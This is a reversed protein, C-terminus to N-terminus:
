PTNPSSVFFGPSAPRPLKEFTEFARRGYGILTLSGNGATAGTHALIKKTSPQRAHFRQEIHGSRGNWQGWHGEGILM